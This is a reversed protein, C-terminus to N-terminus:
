QVSIARQRRIIVTDSGPDNTREKIEKIEKMGKIEKAEKMGRDRGEQGVRSPRRGVDRSGQVDFRTDNSQVIVTRDSAVIRRFIGKSENVRFFFERKRGRGRDRHGIGKRPFFEM